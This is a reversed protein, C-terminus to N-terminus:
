RDRGSGQIRGLVLLGVLLALVVGVGVALGIVDQAFARGSLNADLTLHASASLIGRVGALIGIILFPRVPFEASRLHRFVTHVIDLLIVVALIGDVAPVVSAPFGGASTVFDDVTRVLVIGAVVLLSAVIAYELVVILGLVLVDSRLAGDRPAGGHRHPVGGGGPAEGPPMPGAAEVGDM